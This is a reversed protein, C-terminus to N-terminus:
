EIYEKLFDEKSIEEFKGGESCKVYECAPCKYKDVNNNNGQTVLVQGCCDCEWFKVRYSM